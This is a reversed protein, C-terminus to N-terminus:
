QACCDEPSSAQEQRAGWSVCRWIGQKGKLFAVWVPEGNPGPSKPTKHEKGLYGQPPWTTQMVMMLSFVGAQRSAGSSHSAAVQPQSLAEGTCSGQVRGKGLELFM